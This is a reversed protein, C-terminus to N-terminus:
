VCLIFLELCFGLKKIGPYIRFLDSLFFFFVGWGLSCLLNNWLEGRHYFLGWVGSQSMPGSCTVDMGLHVEVWTTLSESWCLLNVRESGLIRASVGVM